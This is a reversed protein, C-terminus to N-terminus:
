KEFMVRLALQIQLDENSDQLGSVLLSPRGSNVRLLESVLECCSSIDYIHALLFAHGTESTDVFALTKDKMEFVDYRATLRHRGRKGSLMIFAAAFDDNLDFNARSLLTYGSIYQALLELGSAFQYKLGIADFETLWSSQNGTASFPDARNDWHIFSVVHGNRHKWDVGAYFGASHDIEIFPDIYENAPSGAPSGPRPPLPLHDNIGSQYDHLAWGRRYIITGARDNNSTVAGFLSLDSWDGGWIVRGEIALSRIEEGVWSNIASSSLSYPSRWAPGSNELSLPPYMIGLRARYRTESKPVPRFRAYAEVLQLGHEQSDAAQIHILGDLNWGYHPYILLAAQGLGLVIEDTQSDGYRSKGYGNQLWSERNASAVVGLHGYLGYELGFQNEEACVADCLVITLCILRFKIWASEKSVAVPSTTV